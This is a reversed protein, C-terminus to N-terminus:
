NTAVSNSSKCSRTLSRSGDNGASGPSVAYRQGCIDVHPPIGSNEFLDHVTKLQTWFAHLPHDKRQALNADTLRFPMAQVQFRKQGGNLAATVIRWIEDVVANTMAYCGVSSCGGHVMLYSGTRGHSRDYLNPYGLNFSRHWRSAPNLQGASVTYIGEPSQHDGQKLKPGLRGSYRCIPYTAFREFRGNKQLWIELEFERKFIRVLVPSGLKLGAAELRSDLGDLDPTGPLTWGFAWYTSRWIRQFAIARNDDSAIFGGIRNGLLAELKSEVLAAGVLMAVAVMTLTVTSLVGAARQRFQNAAM